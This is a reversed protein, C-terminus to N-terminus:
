KILKSIAKFRPDNSGSLLEFLIAESTSFLVGEGALRLIATEKDSQKRSSTCDTILVPIYGKAVLDVCTQTVCIHSEIGTVIVFKKNLEALKAEINPSMLASFSDKEFHDEALIENLEPITPGMGKTYQQTKVIPVDLIKLGQFLIKSRAVLDEKNSMVPILKEQYDIAIAMVDNADIRM